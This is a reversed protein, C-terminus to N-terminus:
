YTPDTDYPEIVFFRENLCQVQEDLIFSCNTLKKRVIENIEKHKTTPEDLLDEDIPLIIDIFTAEGDDLDCIHGEPHSYAVARTNQAKDFNKLLLDALFYPLSGSEDEPLRIIEDFRYQIVAKQM